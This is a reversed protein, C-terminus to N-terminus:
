ISVKVEMEEEESYYEPLISGVRRSILGQQVHKLISTLLTPGCSPSWRLIQQVKWKGAQDGMKGNQRAHM